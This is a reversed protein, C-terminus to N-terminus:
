SPAGHIVKAGHRLAAALDGDELAKIAADPNDANQIDIIAVVEHDGVTCSSGHGGSPFLGDEVSEGVQDNPDVSLQGTKARLLVLAEAGTDEPYQAAASAYAAANKGRSGGSVGKAAILKASKLTTGHWLNITPKKLDSKKPRTVEKALQAHAGAWKGADDRAEGSVDHSMAVEFREGVIRRVRERVDESLEIGDAEAQSLAIETPDASLAAGKEEADLGQLDGQNAKHWEAFHKEMPGAVERRFIAAMEHPTMPAGDEASLGTAKRFQHVAEAVAVGPIMGIITSGPVAVIPIGAAVGSLLIATAAKHGYRQALGKHIKKTMNTFFQVGAKITQVAKTNKIKSLRSHFEAAHQSPAQQAPGTSASAGGGTTAFQGGGEGTGKHQHGAADASLKAAPKAGPKALSGDPNLAPPKGCGTPRVIGRKRAEEGMWNFRETEEELWKLYEAAKDSPPTPTAPTPM